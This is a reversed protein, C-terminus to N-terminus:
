VSSVNADTLATIALESIVIQLETSFGAVTDTIPKQPIAYLKIKSLINKLTTKEFKCSIPIASV